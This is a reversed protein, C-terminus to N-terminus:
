KAVMLVYSWNIQIVIQNRNNYGLSTITFKEALIHEEM